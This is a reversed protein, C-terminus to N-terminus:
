QCYPDGIEAVWCVSLPSFMVNKVKLPPPLLRLAVKFTEEMLVSLYSDFKWNRDLHHDRMWFPTFVKWVNLSCPLLSPFLPCSSMDIIWWWRQQSVVSIEVILFCALSLSPKHAVQLGMALVAVWRWRWGSPLIMTSVLSQWHPTYIM